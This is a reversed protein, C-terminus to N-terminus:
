LHLWGCQQRAARNYGGSSVKGLLAIHRHEAITSCHHQLAQLEMSQLTICKRTLVPSLCCSTITTCFVSRLFVSNGQLYSCHMEHRPLAVTKLSMWALIKGFNIGLDTLVPCTILFKPHKCLFLFWTQVLQYAQIRLLSSNLVFSLLHM